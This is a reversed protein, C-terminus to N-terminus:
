RWGSAYYALATNYNGQAQHAIKQAQKADCQQRKILADALHAESISPFHLVQCRSKITDIIKDENETILIFLTKAPPEEILKLLKNAAAINMKEAMWIIM